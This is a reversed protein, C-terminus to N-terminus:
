YSSILDEFYVVFTLGYEASIFAKRFKRLIFPRKWLSATKFQTEWGHM